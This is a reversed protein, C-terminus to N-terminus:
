KGQNRGNIRKVKWESKVEKIRKKLEGYVNSNRYRARM